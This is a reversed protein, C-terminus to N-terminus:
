RLPAVIPALHDIAARVDAIPRPSADIEILVPDTLGAQAMVSSWAAWDVIGAGPIRCLERHHEYVTEDIRLDWSIPGTADKWHAAVLRQRHRSAVAVPDGGGLLIHGADPCLGVYFPDTALMYLDIDRELWMGSHSETHLGFRIGGRHAILGVEHLVEAQREVEGIGVFRTRGQGRTTRPPVSGILWTAGIEALFDVHTRTEELLATTGRGAYCAPDELEPLYAGSLSLGREALVESLADVSGYAAVATGRDFPAGGVEFATAGSEDLLDLVRDWLARPADAGRRALEDAGSLGWFAPDAFTYLEVGFRPPRPDNM